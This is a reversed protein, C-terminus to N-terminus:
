SSGYFSLAAPVMIVAIVVGLMLVMPFLLKTSATEGLVRAKRKREDWAESSERELLETLQRNGKQLNQLLLTAFTKYRVQGCREGFRYYAESESIGSEMEYCATVIAEYAARKREGGKKQYDSAIKAFATRITMGAAVLLTFKMILDPYDMLLEEQRSQLLNQKERSKLVLVASAAILFLSALLAGSNDKPHKWSFSHGEWSGPLYYYEDDGKEQNYQELYELIEMRRQEQESIKQAESSSDQAGPIQPIEVTISEEEGGDMTVVFKQDYAEDEREMRFDESISLDYSQMTVILGLLNGAAALLLFLKVSSQASDEDSVPLWGLKFAALVLGLILFIIIHILM